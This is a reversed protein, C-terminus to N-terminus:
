AEAVGDAKLHEAIKKHLAHKAFRGTQLVANKIAKADSKGHGITSLGNIGVLPASGIEKYDLRSNLRRLAPILIGVGLKTLWGSAMVEKKLIDGFLRIAGEGFKLLANGIFGDCVAVDCSGNLIDDGEINGIFHITKLNKLRELSELTLTNGKSEEEGVSLLGVRPKSVGLATRSYLDGMVAFQALMAPKCDVNAGVDLISTWGSPSLSPFNILLAPRIIGPVRGLVFLSVAMAAGTNGATFVAQAEGDKVLQNAVHLSSKKKQRMATSPSEDMGVSEEAPRIVIRASDYKHADLERRLVKEEGVLLVTLDPDQHAAEVCGAVVTAPGRDGGMGDVAVRIM